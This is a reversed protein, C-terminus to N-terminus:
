GNDDTDVSPDNEWEVHIPEDEDDWLDIYAIRMNDDEHEEWLEVHLFDASIYHKSEDFIAKAEKYTKFDGLHFPEYEEKEANWVHASVYWYPYRMKDGGLQLQI